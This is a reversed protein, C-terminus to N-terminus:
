RCLEMLKLCLTSRISGIYDNHAGRDHIINSSNESPCLYKLLALSTYVEKQPQAKQSGGGMKAKKPGNIFVKTYIYMLMHISSFIYCKVV